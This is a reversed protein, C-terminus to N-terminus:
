WLSVVLQNEFVKEAERFEWINSTSQIYSRIMFFIIFLFYAIVPWNRLQLYSQFVMQSVKQLKM